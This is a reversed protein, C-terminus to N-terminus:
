RSRTGGARRALWAVGPIRLVAARARWTRSRTVSDLQGEFRGARAELMEIREAAIASREEAEQLRVTAAILEERGGELDVLIEQRVAELEHLHKRAGELDAELFAIRDTADDLQQDLSHVRSDSLAWEIMLFEHIQRDIDSVFDPALMAEVWRELEEVREEMTMHERPPSPFHLVSPENGSAVRVDEVSLIQQWMYLDTYTDPPTTRWGHPLRRYLELTHAGCSLPIFNRGESMSLRTEALSLHGPWSYLRDGGRFGIPYSHAFDASKLLEAMNAVHDPMWLDDDALYCVITGTAEQLAQHRYIEGHRPGKDHVFLRVRDDAEALAEAASLTGETAGDCVILVEIDNVTQRLASGVAGTLLPGHDHTPVLVTAIPDGM